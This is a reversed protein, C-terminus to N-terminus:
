STLKLGLNIGETVAMQIRAVIQAEPRGEQFYGVEFSRRTIELAESDVWAAPPIDTHLQFVIYGTEIGPFSGGQLMFGLRFALDHTGYRGGEPRPEYGGTKSLKRYVVIDNTQLHLDNNKFVGFQLKRSQLADWLVSDVPFLHQAM